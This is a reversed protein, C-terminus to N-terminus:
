LLVQNHQHGVYGGVASVGPTPPEKDPPYGLPIASTAAIAALVVGALLKRPQRNVKRGDADLLVQNHQHGGIGYNRMTAM